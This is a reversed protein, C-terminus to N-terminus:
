GARLDEHGAWRWTTMLADFLEVVLHTFESDPKGDGLTTFTVLVWRRHDDPSATVYEIKRAALESGILDDPEHHVVSDTRVWASGGAEVPEGGTRLLEAMVDPVDDQTAAADPIVASVTFSANLQNGHSAEAPFYYDVAGMDGAAALETTLRRELRRRLPGVQDPPLDKPLQAVSRDIMVKLQAPVDGGLQIRQWPPPLIISYGSM